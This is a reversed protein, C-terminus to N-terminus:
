SNIYYEWEKDRLFEVVAREYGGELINWGQTSVVKKDYGLGRLKAELDHLSPPNDFVRLSGDVLKVARTRHNRDLIIREAKALCVLKGSYSFLVLENNDLGDSSIHIGEGEINFIFKQWKLVHSFYAKCGELTDFGFVRKSLKVIRM